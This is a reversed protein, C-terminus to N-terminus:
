IEVWAGTIAGFSASSAALNEGFVPPPAHYRWYSQENSKVNFSDEWTPCIHPWGLRSCIKAWWIMHINHTEASSFCPVWDYYANAIGLLEFLRLIVFNYDMRIKRSPVLHAIETFWCQQVQNYLPDFRKLMMDESLPAPRARDAAWIIQRWRELKVPSDLRKLCRQIQSRNHHQARRLDIPYSQHLAKM